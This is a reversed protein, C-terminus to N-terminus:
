QSKDNNVSAAYKDDKKLFFCLCSACSCCSGGLVQREQPNGRQGLPPYLPLPLTWSFFLSMACSLTNCFMIFQPNKPDGAFFVTNLTSSGILTSPASHMPSAIQRQSWALPNFVRAAQDKHQRIFFHRTLPVEDGSNNGM